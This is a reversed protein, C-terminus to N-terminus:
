GRELGEFYGMRDEFGTEYGHEAAQKTAIYAIMYYREDEQQFEQESMKM